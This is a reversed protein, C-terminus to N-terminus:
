PIPENGEGDWEMLIEFYSKINAIIQRGEEDSLARQYFPEWFRLTEKLFEDMVVLM